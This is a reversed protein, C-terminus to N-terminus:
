LRIFIESGLTKKRVTDHVIQSGYTNGGVVLRRGSVFMPTRSITGAGDDTPDLFPGFVLDDPRDFIVYCPRYRPVWHVNGSGMACSRLDM